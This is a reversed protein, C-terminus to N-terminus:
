IANADAGLLSCYEGARLVPGCIRPGRPTYVSPRAALRWLLAYVGAKEFLRRPEFRERFIEHARRAEARWQDGSQCLRDFTTPIAEQSMFRMTDNFMAEDLPHCRESLVMRGGPMSLIRSIRFTVPSKGAAECGKHVNLYFDDRQLIEFFPADDWADYTQVMRERLQARLREFCATRLHSPQLHHTKDVAGLFRLRACPDGRLGTASALAPPPPVYGPPVLRLTLTPAERKVGGICQFTAHRTGNFPRPFSQRCSRMCGDLGAWGFDWVEDVLKTRYPCWGRPETSYLATHVGRRRLARFPMNPRTALTFPGVWLFFDGRRLEDLERNLRSSRGVGARVEWGDAHRFGAVLTALVPYLMFSLHGDAREDHWLLVRNSLGRTTNDDRLGLHDALWADRAAGSALEAASIGATFQSREGLRENALRVLEARMQLAAAAVRAKPRRPRLSSRRAGRGALRHSSSDRAAVPTAVYAYYCLRKAHRETSCELGREVIRLM